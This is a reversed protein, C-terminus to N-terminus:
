GANDARRDSFFFCLSKPYLQQFSSNKRLLSSYTHDTSSIISSPLLRDSLNTMNSLNYIYYTNLNLPKNISYNHYIIYTYIVIFINTFNANLTHNVLNIIDVYVDALFLYDTMFQYQIASTSNEVSLVYITNTLGTPATIIVSQNETNLYLTGFFVDTGSTLYVKCQNTITFNSLALYLTSCGRLYSLDFTITSFNVQYQGM